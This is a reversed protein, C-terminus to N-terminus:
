NSRLEYRNDARGRNVIHITYRGPAPPRWRCVEVDDLQESSCIRRGGEDFVYLDLNSDGDGAILVTAAEDSRFAERYTHTALPPAVASHLRPGDVLGRPRDAATDDILELLAPQGRALTRARELLAEASRPHPGPKAAGAPGRPGGQAAHGPHMIKLRAAMVLALADHTALAHSTLREALVAVDMKASPTTGDGAAVPAVTTALAVASLVLAARYLRPSSM